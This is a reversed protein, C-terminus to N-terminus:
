YTNHFSFQIYEVEVCGKYWFQKGQPSWWSINRPQKYLSQSAVSKLTKNLILYTETSEYRGRDRECIVPYRYLEKDDVDHLSSGYSICYDRYDSRHTLCFTCLKMTPISVWLFMHGFNGCQM